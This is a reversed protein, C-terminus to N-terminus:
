QNKEDYLGAQLWAEEDTKRVNKRGIGKGKSAAEAITVTRRRTVRSEMERWMPQIDEYKDIQLPSISSTDTPSIPVPGFKSSINTYQDKKWKSTAALGDLVNSNMEESSSGFSRFPQRFLTRNNVRVCKALSKMRLASHM